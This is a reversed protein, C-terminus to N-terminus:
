FANGLSIFWVYPDEFPERDLKWGIELRLPGVPSLYRVGVGAGWKLAGADIDRYDNWVNGGDLFLSGGIPGAVPFRYELNVLALGGTKHIPDSLARLIKGDPDPPAIDALNEAMTKGTM